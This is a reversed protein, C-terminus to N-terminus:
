HWSECPQQEPVAPPTKAPLNDDAEKAISLCRYRSPFESCSSQSRAFRAAFYSPSGNFSKQLNRRNGSKFNKVYEPIADPDLFFNRPDTVGAQFTALGARKALIMEKGDEGIYLVACQQEEAFRKVREFMLTSGARKRESNDMPVYIRGIFKRDENQGTMEGFPSWDMPVGEWSSHDGPIVGKVFDMVRLIKASLFDKVPNDQPYNLGWEGPIDMVLGLVFGKRQLLDVYEKTTPYLKADDYKAPDLKLYFMPHFHNTDTDVLTQGMDFFVLPKECGSYVQNSSFLLILLFLTKM